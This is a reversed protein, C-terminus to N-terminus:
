VEVHGDGEEHMMEGGHTDGTQRTKGPESSGCGVGVFVTVTLVAALVWLVKSMGNLRAQKKM